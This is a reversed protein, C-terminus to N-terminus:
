CLVAVSLPLLPLSSTAARGAALSAHRGACRFATLQVCEWASVPRECDRPGRLLLPRSVGPPMVAARASRARTRASRVGCPWRPRGPALGRRQPTTHARSASQVGKM